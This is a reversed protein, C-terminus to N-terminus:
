RAGRRARWSDTLLESLEEKDLRDLWCWITATVRHTAIFCFVDRQEGLAAESDLDLSWVQLVERDGDRRLRAFPRRGVDFTPEGTHAVGPRAGDLTAAVREM